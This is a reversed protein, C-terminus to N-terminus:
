DYVHKFMIFEIAVTSSCTYLGVSVVNAVTTTGRTSYASFDARVSNSVLELSFYNQPHQIGNSSYTCIGLGLSRLRQASFLEIREALEISCARSPLRLEM